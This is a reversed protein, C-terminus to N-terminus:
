RRAPRAGRVLSSAPASRRLFTPGVGDRRDPGSGPAALLTPGPVPAAAGQPPADAAPARRAPGLLSRPDGLAGGAGPGGAPGPLHLQRHDAAGTGGDLVHRPARRRPDPRPGRGRGPALGGPVRRPEGHPRPSAAPRDPRGVARRSEPPPAHFRGTRM